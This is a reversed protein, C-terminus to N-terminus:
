DCTSGLTYSVFYEGNNEFVTNGYLGYGWREADTFVNPIDEKVISGNAAMARDYQEKTIKKVHGYTM